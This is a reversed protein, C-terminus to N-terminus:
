YRCAGTSPKRRRIEGQRGARLSASSCSSDVTTILLAAQSSTWAQASLLLLNMSNFPWFNLTTRSNRGQRQESVGRWVMATHWLCFPPLSPPLWPLLPLSSTCILSIIAPPLPSTFAQGERGTGKMWPLLLLAAGAAMIYLPPSSPSSSTAPFHVPQLASPIRHCPPPQTFTQRTNPQVTRECASTQKLSCSCHKIRYNIRWGCCFLLMLVHVHTRKLGRALTQIFYGKGGRM